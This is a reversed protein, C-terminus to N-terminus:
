LSPLLRLLSYTPYVGSIISLQLQIWSYGDPLFPLIPRDTAQGFAECNRITDSTSYMLLTANPNASRVQRAAAAQKAEGASNNPACYQCQQSGIIAISAHAMDAFFDRWPHSPPLHIPAEHFQRM